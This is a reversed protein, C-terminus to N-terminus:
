CFFINMLYFISVFSIYALCLLSYYIKNSGNKKNKKRTFFGKNLNKTTIKKHLYTYCATNFFCKEGKSSKCKALLFVHICSPWIKRFIKQHLTFMKRSRLSIKKFHCKVHLYMRSSLLVNSSWGWILFYTSELM